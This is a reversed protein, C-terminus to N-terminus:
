NPVTQSDLGMWGPLRSEAYPRPKGGGSCARSPTFGEGVLTGLCHRFQKGKSAVRLRSRDFVSCALGVLRRPGQSGRTRGGMDRYRAVQGRRWRSDPSTRLSLVGSM